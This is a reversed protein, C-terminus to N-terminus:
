SLNQSIFAHVLLQEARPRDSASAAFCLRVFDKVSDSASNPLEYEPPWVNGIKYIAAISAYRYWPPHKTLMEVVTCGLSWIDSRCGCAEGRIVEPAMFYPTGAIKSTEAMSQSQLLKAAGFDGLKLNGRHDRLINACKIDRHVIMKSHLYALGKLVQSTYRGTVKETLMGYRIIHDRLSGMPIFEIFISLCEPESQMGYYEVIYDNHIGQLVSIEM